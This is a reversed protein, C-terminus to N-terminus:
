PVLVIKGGERSEFLRFGEEWQALPIVHTLIPRTVVAGSALLTLARHWSQRRQGVGGSVRLGKYAITAMDIEFPKGALGIQTYQGLRRLAAFGARAAAPAGSCELYVDCGEGGTLEGLLAVLDTQTVDLTWEAGLRRALELRTADGGAGTVLVRGGAARATQLALLGITGPGSVVVLDGPTIRTQEMTSHVVCALPEMATASLTDIVDPLVYTRRAPSLVYKAFCGNYVYGLTQKEACLNYYGNQCAACHGCTEIATEGVARQGVHLDTVGEGVAVIRGAYEHGMVAPPRLIFQIDWNRIHIDSGCIGASAVEIKVWGPGPTPDPMERLEVNGPGEAFKVLAKV